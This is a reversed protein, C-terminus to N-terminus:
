IKNIKAFPIKMGQWPSSKLCFVGGSRQRFFANKDFPRNATTIFIDRMERGGFCLSSAKMGPLHLEHDLKGDADFRLVKPGWIASWVGGATDVALGDCPTGSVFVKKDYVGDPTYRYQYITKETTATFYFTKGDPSFGMGNPVGRCTDVFKFSNDPCFQWLEGTGNHMEHSLVTCFVSGDPATTVDNFAFKGGELEALLQPKEAPKWSWVRCGAAFLLFRGDELQAYASIRGVGPDFSEFGDVGAASKRLVPGPCEDQDTKLPDVWYICGDCRSYFPGEAVMSMSAAFPRLEPSAAFQRFVEFYRKGLEHQSATDFHLNDGKHNLDKTMVFRFSPDEEALTNLAKDVINVNVSINENYFSGLEGAIFPVSKDLQLDRRFNNVVTRLKETYNPTQKAADSEGQHWCVAVIKGYKRAERALKIANDYPHNDPDWEDTGGPMWAAISTGGVACPLLIINKDAYIEKLLRGFTRGPGVGVIRGGDGPLINDWPDASEIKKGNKDFSGVFDRDRTIPEVASRIINGPRFVYVGPIETLDETEAIGRGAMNSQGALLVLLNKEPDTLDICM